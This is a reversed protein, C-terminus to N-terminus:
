KKVDPKVFVDVGIEKIATLQEQSAKKLLVKYSSGNYSYCVESELCESRVILKGMILGM